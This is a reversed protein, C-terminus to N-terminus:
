FKLTTIKNSINVFKSCLLLQFRVTTEIEKKVEEEVVTQNLGDSEFEEAKFISVYDCLIESSQSTCVVDSHDYSSTDKYTGDLQFM